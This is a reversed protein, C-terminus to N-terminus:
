DCNRKSNPYFAYAQLKEMTMVMKVVVVVIENGACPQQDMVGKGCAYWVIGPIM